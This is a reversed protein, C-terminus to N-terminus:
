KFIEILEVLEEKLHEIKTDKFGTILVKRDEESIDSYQQLYNSILLTKENPNEKIKKILEDLIKNSDDFQHKKDMQNTDLQEYCWSSQEKIEEQYKNKILEDRKPFSYSEIKKLISVGKKRYNSILKEIEDYNNM